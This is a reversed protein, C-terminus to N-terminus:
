GDDYPKLLDSNSVDNIKRNNSATKIEEGKRQRLVRIHFSHEECYTKMLLVSKQFVDLCENRGIMALRFHSTVSAARRQLASIIQFIEHETTQDHKM